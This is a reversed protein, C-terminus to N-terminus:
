KEHVDETDIFATIFAIILAIIFISIDTALVSEMFYDVFKMTVITFITDLFIFLIKAFATNIKNLALLAKTLSNAMVDLPYGLVGVIIFFHAVSGISEYQFGFLKMILGGFISFISLLVIILITGLIVGIYKKNKEM